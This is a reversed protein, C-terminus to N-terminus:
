EEEELQTQLIIYGDSFQILETDKGETRQIQLEPKSDVYTHKIINHSTTSKGMVVQNGQSDLPLATGEGWNLFEAIFAQNFNLGVLVRANKYPPFYFQGTDLNPQYATRVKKSEWLPISTQYYVVSTKDDTYFQYSMDTEEGKESVIKGEVFFPYVPPIYSPLDVWLETSSELKITHEMEYLSYGPFAGQKVWNARLQWKKVRYTNAYVFLSSNWASSGKFNVIQGPPTIQLQFKQYEVWVEHSRQKFRSTELTVRSQMDAAIPYRAIYDHRIPSEMKENSITTIASSESYANLVNPQYRLIEPFDVGFKAIEFPDLSQATGPPTKSTTLSYKSTAFDYSFVGNQTDVLWIIFDYFSAQNGSAGLSLSLVPFVTELFPWDYTLSIKASTHATILTKLSSDVQLDCPYHQKWLVQASDAFTLHYHRNLMFTQSPLINTLTQESFSRTTVLGSLTLPTSPADTPTVYIEVKLSLEILDNKTTFPTFLKDTVGESSVIFSVKGDFGYTHLNLELSKVDSAPIAYIQGAITLSVTIALDSSFSIM